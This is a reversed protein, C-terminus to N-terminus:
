DELHVEVRRGTRLSEVGAACVAAAAYGDRATPGDTTGRHVADVWRQVEVDYASAFRERYDAPVRGGWGGPGRRLLGVGLGTTATGREGVLETRVEYGYGTSVFVEVDVLAGGETELLALLPDQVGAPAHGSARPRLVTIATVEEGLLYRTADVEHVLSDLVLMESTFWPPTSANRHVCHLMLPRGLEGSAVLERLQVHEADFRRMFGVQVLSRGLAREARVLRLSTEPSTTLPKECLVPLGRELCALVQEEHVPGPSAIVVADVDADAVADLPDALPRVGFEGAVARTRDPDADAVAVLRAGATREHLRRAHDRGMTGVGLVAVRLERRGAPSPAGTTSTATPVPDTTTATSM